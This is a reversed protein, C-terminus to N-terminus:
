GKSLHLSELVLTSLPFMPFSCEKKYFRSYFHAYLLVEWPIPRARLGATLEDLYPNSVLALPVEAVADKNQIVM